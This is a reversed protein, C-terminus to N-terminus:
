KFRDIWYNPKRHLSAVAVIVIEEERIHYIIGYPFSKILCRRVKKSLPHWGYPYFEILELSKKFSEIFRSGLGIQEYEYYCFADDSEAVAEDLITLKM